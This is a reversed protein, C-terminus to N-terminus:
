SSTKVFTYILIKIDFNIKKCIDDRNGRATVTYLSGRQEIKIPNIDDFNIASDNKFICQIKHINIKM